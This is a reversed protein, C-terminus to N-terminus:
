INKNEITIQEVPVGLANSIRGITRITIPKNQTTIRSITAQTLNSKQSLEKVGIGLRYMEMRIKKSDAIIM